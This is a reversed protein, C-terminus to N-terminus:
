LGFEKLIGDAFDNKQTSVKGSYANKQVVNNSVGSIAQKWVYKGYKDIYGEYHEDKVFALGDKFGSTNKFQPIIKFEGKKDIFGWLGNYKVAILNESNNLIVNEFKAEVIEKGNKNILGIKNNQKIQYLDYNM